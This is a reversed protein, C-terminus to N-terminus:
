EETKIIVPFEKEKVGANESRRVAGGGGFFVGGKGDASRSGGGGGRRGGGEMHMKNNNAGLALEEPQLQFKLENPCLSKFGCCHTHTRTRTRTCGQRLADFFKHRRTRM